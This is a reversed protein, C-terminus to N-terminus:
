TRIRKRQNMKGVASVKSTKVQSIEVKNKKMVETQESFHDNINQMTVRFENPQKNTDEKFRKIM